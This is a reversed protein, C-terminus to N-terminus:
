TCTKTYVYTKMKRPYIGFLLIAPDCPLETFAKSSSDSQKGFGSCWKVNGGTTLTHPNRNEM